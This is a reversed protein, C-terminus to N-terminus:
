YGHQNFIDILRQPVYPRGTPNKGHLFVGLEWDDPHFHVAKIPKDATPYTRHNFKTVFNYNHNLEEVSLIQRLVLSKLAKEDTRNKAYDSWKVVQKMEENWVNFFQEANNRFFFSGCQWDHKYAYRAAGFTKINPATFPILQYVDLDHYWFLEDGLLRNQLLYLIAPVKNSTPDHEAYIDPIVRSMVNRVECAFNTFLLIDSPSWGLDLNNDMQLQILKAAEQSFQKHPSTYAYLLKM